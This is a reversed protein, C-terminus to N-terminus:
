NNISRTILITWPINLMNTRVISDSNEFYKSLLTLYSIEDRINKGRDRMMLQKEIYGQRPTRVPEAMVLCGGKKLCIKASSILKESEADSLHHLIGMAIVIDFSGEFRDSDNVSTCFFKGKNGYKAKAFQIYDPNIDFGVYEIDPRLYEIAVGTGCGIDLVNANSSPNIYEQCIRRKSRESGSVVQWANYFFPIELISTIGISSHGTKNM